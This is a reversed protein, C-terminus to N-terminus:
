SVPIYLLFSIDPIGKISFYLSNETYFHCELIENSPDEVVDVVATIESAAISNLMELNFIAWAFIQSSLNESLM